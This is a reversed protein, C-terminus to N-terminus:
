IEWDFKIIEWDFEMKRRYGSYFRGICTTFYKDCEYFTWISLVVVFLVSKCLLGRVISVPDFHQAQLPIHRRRDNVLTHRSLWESTSLKKGSSKRAKASETTSALMMGVAM